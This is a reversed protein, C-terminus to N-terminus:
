VRFIKQPKTNGNNGGGYVANFEQQAQLLKEDYQEHWEQYCYDLAEKITEITEPSLPPPTAEAFLRKYVIEKNCHNCMSMTTKATKDYRIRESM